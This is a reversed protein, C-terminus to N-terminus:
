FIIYLLSDVIFGIFTYVAMPIKVMKKKDTRTLNMLKTVILQVVIVVQAIILVECFRTFGLSLGLCGHMIVDGGGAKKMLAFIYFMSFGCVTGGIINMIDIMYNESIYIQYVTIPLILVSMLPFNWIRIKREKVDTYSAFSLALFVIIFKIVELIM